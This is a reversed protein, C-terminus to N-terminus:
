NRSLLVYRTRKVMVNDESREHFIEVGIPGHISNNDKRQAAFIPGEQGMSVIGFYLSDEPVSDISEKFIESMKKM